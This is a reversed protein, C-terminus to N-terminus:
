ACRGVFSKDAFAVNAVDDREKGCWGCTGTGLSKFEVSIM